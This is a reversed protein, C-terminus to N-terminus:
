VWFLRFTAFMKPTFFPSFTSLMMVATIALSYYRFMMFLIIFVKSKNKRKWVYEVEDNLSLMHDYIHLTFCSITIYKIAPFQSSVTDSLEATSLM